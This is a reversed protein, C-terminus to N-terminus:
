RARELADIQAQMKEIVARMTPISNASANAAVAETRAQAADTKAQAKEARKAALLAQIQDDKLWPSGHVPGAVYPLGDDDIAMVYGTGNPADIVLISRLALM